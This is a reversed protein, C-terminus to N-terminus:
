IQSQKLRAKKINQLPIKAENGEEIEVLINGNEVGHLTGLFNRRGDIPNETRIKVESGIFRRFDGEKRLPRDIGPSSVELTYPFDIPDEADLFRSITNSITACDEVDVGDEKDIYYRVLWRGRGKHVEVEVLSIEFLDCAREGTSWLIEELVNDPGKRELGQMTEGGSKLSGIFAEGEGM